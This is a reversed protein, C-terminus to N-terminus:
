IKRPYPSIAGLVEPPFSTAERQAIQPTRHMVRGMGMMTALKLLYGGMDMMTASMLLYGGMEMVTYYSVKDPIRM